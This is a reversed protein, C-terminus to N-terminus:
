VTQLFNLYRPLTMVYDFSYISVAAARM